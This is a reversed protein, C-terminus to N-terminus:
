KSYVDSQLSLSSLIAFPNRFGNTRGNPTTRGSPTPASNSCSPVSWESAPSQLNPNSPGRTIVKWSPFQSGICVHLINDSIAGYSKLNERRHSRPIGDEAIYHRAPETCVSTESSRTMKTKLTSPIVHTLFYGDLVKKAQMIEEARFISTISEEL